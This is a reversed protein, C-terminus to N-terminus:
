EASATKSKEPHWDFWWNLIMNRDQSGEVCHWWCSPLYLMDGASLNVEVHQAKRLLPYKEQLEPSLEDFYTFPPAASRSFDSMTHTFVPYLNCAECPPFLWLRKTGNLCLLLNERMDFHVSTTNRGCGMYTFVGEPNLRGFCSGYIRQPCTEAREVEQALEPLEINLPVKGLYFPVAACNGREHEEVRDLFAEFPLRLEPDTVFVPRGESDNYALNKTLVRRHGCLQRLFAFDAFTELPAFSQQRFINKLVAPRNNMVFSQFFETSTPAEITPVELPQEPGTLMRVTLGLKAMTIFSLVSLVPASGEAFLEELFSAMTTTITGKQVLAKLSQRCTRALEDGIGGDLKALTADVMRSLAVECSPTRDPMPQIGLIRRAENALTELRSSGESIRRAVAHKMLDVGEASPPFGYKQLIPAQCKLVVKGWAGMFPAGTKLCEAQVEAVEQKFAPDKYKEILEELMPELVETSPDQPVERPASQLPARSLTSNTEAYGAM